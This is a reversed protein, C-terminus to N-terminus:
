NMASRISSLGAGTHTGFFGHLLGLGHAPIHSRVHIKWVLFLTPWDIITDYFWLTAQSAQHQWTGLCLVKPLLAEAWPDGWSAARTNSYKNYYQLIIHGKVWCRLSCASRLWIGAWSGRRWVVASNWGKRGRQSSAAGDRSKWQRGRCRRWSWSWSGVRIGWLQSSNHQTQGASGEWEHSLPVSHLDRTVCGQSICNPSWSNDRVWLM